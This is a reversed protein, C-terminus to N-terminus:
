LLTILIVLQEGLVVFTTTINLRHRTRPSMRLFGFEVAFEFISVDETVSVYLVCICQENCLQWQSMFM